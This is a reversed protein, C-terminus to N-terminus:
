LPPPPILRGSRTGQRALDALSPSSMGAAQPVAPGLRALPGVTIGVQAVGVPLAVGVKGADPGGGEATAGVKVLPVREGGTGGGQRGGRGRGRPVPPNNGAIGTVPGSRIPFPPGILHPKLFSLRGEGKPGSGTGGHVPKLKMPPSPFPPRSSTCGSFPRHGAKPRPPLVGLTIPLATRRAAEGGGGGRGGPRLPPPDFPAQPWAPPHFVASPLPEAEAPFMNPAWVELHSFEKVGGGGGAGAELPLRLPGVVAADQFATAYQVATGVSRWRGWLPLIADPPPSRLM